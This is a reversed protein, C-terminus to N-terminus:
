GKKEDGEAHYKSVFRATAASLGFDILFLTILSNALTYLGYQSQGIQRVMWPTYLLGALINLGISIYSALSGIAIQKRRSAM